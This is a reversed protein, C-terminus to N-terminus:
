IPESRFTRSRIYTALPNHAFEAVAAVECFIIIGKGQYDEPRPPPASGKHREGM